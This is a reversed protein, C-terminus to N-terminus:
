LSSQTPTRARTRRHAADTADTASSAHSGPTTPLDFRREVATDPDHTHVTGVLHDAVQLWGLEDLLESVCEGVSSYDDHHTGDSDSRM